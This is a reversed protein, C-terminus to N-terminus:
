RNSRREVEAQVSRATDSDILQYHVLLRLASIDAQGQDKLIKLSAVCWDVQEGTLLGQDCILRLHENDLDTWAADTHSEQVLDESVESIHAAAEITPIPIEERCGPCIGQRGAYRRSVSVRNDCLPCAFTIPM